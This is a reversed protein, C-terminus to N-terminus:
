KGRGKATLQNTGKKLNGAKQQTSTAIAYATSRAMNPNKRLIAAVTKDLIAPM